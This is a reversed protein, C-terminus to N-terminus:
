PDSSFIRVFSELCMFILMALPIFFLTMILRGRNLITGCQKLDGMAFAKTHQAEIARNSGYCATLLFIFTISNGIGLAAQMKADGLHGAFITSILVVMGQMMHSYVNEM